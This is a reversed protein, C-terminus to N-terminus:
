IKAELKTFKCFGQGVTANAGIQITKKDIFDTLKLNVDNSISFFLFLSQSPVFQEYWLNGDGDLNNRAIVPLNYNDCVMKFDGDSLLIWNDKWLPFNLSLTENTCTEFDHVLSNLSPNLCKPSNDTVKQNEIIKM